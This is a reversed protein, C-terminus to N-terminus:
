NQPFGADAMAHAFTEARGEEAAREIAKRLPAPDDSTGLVSRLQETAETWEVVLQRGAWPGSLLRQAAVARLVGALRLRGVDRDGAPLTAVLQVLASAADPASFAAIVLMGSEALRIARELAVSERLESLVLVDPDQRVAAQLAGAFDVSDTGIERQTM